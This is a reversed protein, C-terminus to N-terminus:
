KDMLSPHSRLYDGWLSRMVPIAKALGWTGLTLAGGLMAPVVIKVIPLWFKIRKEWKAKREQDIKQRLKQDEVYSAVEKLANTQDSQVDMLHEYREDDAKIRMQFFGPPRTKDGNSYFAYMWERLPSIHRSVEQVVLERIKEETFQM